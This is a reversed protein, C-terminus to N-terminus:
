GNSEGASEGLDKSMDRILQHASCVCNKAGHDENKSNIWERVAKLIQDTDETIKDCVSPRSGDKRMNALKGHQFLIERIRQKLNM